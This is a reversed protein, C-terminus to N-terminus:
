AAKKATGEEAKVGPIPAADVSSPKAAGKPEAPKADKQTRTLGEIEKGHYAKDYMNQLEGDYISRIRKLIGLKEREVLSEPTQANAEGAVYGMAAGASALIFPAIPGLFAGAIFGAIGGVVGGITGGTGRYKKYQPKLKNTYADKQKKIATDLSNFDEIGSAIDEVSKIMARYEDAKSKQSNYVKEAKEVKKELRSYENMFVRDWFRPKEGKDMIAKVKEYRGKKSELRTTYEDLTNKLREEVALVSHTKRYDALATEISYKSCNGEVEAPNYGLEVLKELRYDLNQAM